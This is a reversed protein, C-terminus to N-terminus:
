NVSQPLHAEWFTVADEFWGKADTGIGLGFGHGATRYKQYEVEIGASRMNEVRRDVVSTDVIPDDKSVMTFTPPDSETYDSHGTYAIVATVPRPLDAGGFGASGYSSVNAAMRAGASSGWLSYGETSVGLEGAHQAVFTVAAALDQTAVLEGEGVRYEVVFANYGKKSLELAHPFGSDLSNVHSFGGGACVIAFPAGPEGRFFFLGTSEKGPNEQKQQQDYIDYFVTEGAEVQGILYNIVELATDINIISVSRGPLVVDANSLQRNGDYSPVTKIPLIFQGFGEFAPHNVVESITTAATVRAYSGSTNAATPKVAVNSEQTMSSDPFGTVPQEPGEGPCCATMGLLLAATLLLLFRQKIAM